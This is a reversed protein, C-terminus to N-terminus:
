RASCRTLPKRQVHRTTLQLADAEALEDLDDATPAADFQEDRRVYDRGMDLWARETM